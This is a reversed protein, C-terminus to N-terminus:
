NLKELEHKIAIRDETSLLYLKGRIKKYYNKVKPSWCSMHRGNWYYPVPFYKLNGMSGCAPDDDNNYNCHEFSDHMILEDKNDLDIDSPNSKINFGSLFAEVSKQGDRKNKSVEKIRGMTNFLGRYTGPLNQLVISTNGRIIIRWQYHGFSTKEKIIFAYDMPGIGDFNASRIDWFAYNGQDFDTKSLDNFVNLILDLKRDDQEQESFIEKDLKKLNQFIGHIREENNIEKVSFFRLCAHNRSEVEKENPTVSFIRISQDSALTIEPLFLFIFIVFTIIARLMTFFKM